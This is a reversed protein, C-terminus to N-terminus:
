KFDSYFGEDLWNSESKPIKKKIKRPVEAIESKQKIGSFTDVKNDELLAYNRDLQDPFIRKIQYPWALLDINIASSDVLQHWTIFKYTIIFEELLGARWFWEKDKHSSNFFDHLKKELRRGGKLWLEVVTERPNGRQLSIVYHSPDPDNTYGIKTAGEEIDTLFYIM